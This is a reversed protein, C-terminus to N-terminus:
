AVHEGEWVVCGIGVLICVIGIIDLRTLTEHFVLVGASAVALVSIGSWLVNIIGMGRYKYSMVLMLCVMAYFVIAIFYLHIKGPNNFYSKLCMQGLCELIVILLIIGLLVGYKSTM